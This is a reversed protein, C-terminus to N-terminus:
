DAQIKQKLTQLELRLLAIEQAMIKSQEAQRSIVVTLHLFFMGGFLISVVLLVAPAYYIDLMEAVTDLLGRWLSLVILAIGGILWLISYEERLKRSRILHIILLIISASGFIALIEIRSGM